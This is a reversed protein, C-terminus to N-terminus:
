DGPHPQTPRLRQRRLAAAQAIGVARQKATVKDHCTRCVAICADADTAESRRVGAGAIGVRHHAETATFTCGPLRLQCEHHDRNLVDQRIRRWLRTGGQGYSSM